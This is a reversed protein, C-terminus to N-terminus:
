IEGLINKRIETAIALVKEHPPLAKKVSEREFCRKKWTSINSFTDELHITFKGLSEFADFWSIIPVFVIDVLGFRDGGFYKKGKLEGELIALNQLFENKAAEQVEGKTRFIELGHFCVKKEVFDTWFLAIARDYQHSPLFATQPSNWAHDIYQLIILYESIPMGNHILVPIKKHLPNMQLLMPSKNRLNEEVYEYSIGKEELGIMVRMGYLSFWATLLKVDERDEKLRDVSLSNDPAGVDDNNGTDDDDDHIIEPETQTNMPQNDLVIENPKFDPIKVGKPLDEAEFREPEDEEVEEEEDLILGLVKKLIQETEEHVLQTESILM